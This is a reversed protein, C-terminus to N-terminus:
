AILRPCLSELLQITQPDEPHPLLKQAYAATLKGQKVGELIAVERGAKDDGLSVSWKPKEGLANAEGVLRHYHEKFAMRAGVPDDALAHALGWAQRMEDTWVLTISENCQSPGCIAWAEEAGPHQGPLRSVIESLTIKKLEKRCRGLALQVQGVPYSDLDQALLELGLDTIDQGLISYTAKLSELLDM